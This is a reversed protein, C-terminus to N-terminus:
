SKMSIVATVGTLSGTVTAVVRITSYTVFYGDFAKGSGSAIASAQALDTDDYYNGDAGKYQVKLQLTGTGGGIAYRVTLHRYTSFDIDQGNTAGASLNANNLGTIVISGSSLPIEKVAGNVIELKDGDKDALEVYQNGDDSYHATVLGKTDSKGNEISM